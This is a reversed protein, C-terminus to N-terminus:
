CDYGPSHLILKKEAFFIIYPDSFSISHEKGLSVGNSLWPTLTPTLYVGIPHPTTLSIVGIPALDAKGCWTYRINLDSLYHTLPNTYQYIPPSWSLDEPTTPINPIHVEKKKKEYEAIETERRDQTKKKAEEQEQWKEAM